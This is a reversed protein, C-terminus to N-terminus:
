WRAASDSSFIPLDDITSMLAIVRPRYLLALLETGDFPYIIM